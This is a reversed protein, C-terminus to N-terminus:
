PRLTAEFVGQWGYTTAKVVGMGKLTTRRFALVWEKTKKKKQHGFWGWLGPNAEAVGM